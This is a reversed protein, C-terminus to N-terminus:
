KTNEGEKRGTVMRRIEKEKERRGTKDGVIITQKEWV